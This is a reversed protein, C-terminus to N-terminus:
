RVIVLGGKPTLNQGVHPEWMGSLMLEKWCHASTCAGSVRLTELRSASRREGSESGTEVEKWQLFDNTNKDLGVEYDSSHM